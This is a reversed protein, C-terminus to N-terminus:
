GVLQCQLCGPLLARLDPELNAPLRLLLFFWTSSPGSPFLNTKQSSSAWPGTVIKEPLFASVGWSIPFGTGLAKDM